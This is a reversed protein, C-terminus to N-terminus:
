LRDVANSPNFCTPNCRHYPMQSLLKAGVICALNDDMDATESDAHVASLDVPVSLGARSALLYRRLVEPWTAEDIVRGWRKARSRVVGEMGMQLV